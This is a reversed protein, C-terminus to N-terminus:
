ELESETLIPNAAEVDMKDEMSANKAEEKLKKEDEL